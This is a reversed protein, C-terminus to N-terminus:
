EHLEHILGSLVLVETKGSGPGAIVWLPGTGHSVVPVQETTDLQRNSQQEVVALMQQLDM